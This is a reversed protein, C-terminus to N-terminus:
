RSIDRHERHCSTCITASRKIATNRRDGDGARLATELDRVAFEADTLLQRFADSRARAEPLRQAERFYEVLQVALPVGKTWEAAQLQNLRDWVDDIEVMAAAMGQPPVAEPFDGSVTWLEDAGPREFERVAAYLGAYRQDTGARHLFEVADDATWVDSRCRQVVAAATPGRHKGHHCHIYIPGPLESAARLLRLSQERTVGGYTLPVHVYRLGFQRARDVDPRAGDVSIITRIGLAQLSRFGEDGEPTSGSWLGDGVPLLNDLGAHEAPEAPPDPSPARNCGAPAAALVLAM